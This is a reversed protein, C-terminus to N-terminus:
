DGVVDVAKIAVDEYSRMFMADENGEEDTGLEAVFSDDLVIYARRDGASIYRATVVFKEDGYYYTKGVKFEKM